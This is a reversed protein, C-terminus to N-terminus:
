EDAWVGSKVAMDLWNSLDAANATGSAIARLSGNFGRGKLYDHFIKRGHRYACEDGYLEVMGAAQEEIISRWESASPLSFSEPAQLQRFLWPNGMAGTALMVRSCGTRLKIENYSAVSNVGGNAIVEIEPFEERVAKIIDFYVPGSYFAKKVRGHVTLVQAGCDVLGRCLKLTPEPDETDLIRLKASVPFKSYKAVTDFCRVAEDYHLGLEAGACKKAVKPVPCGLNFDLIDFNFRNIKEVAERIHDTQGGLLQVGLFEEDDYRLLLDKSRDFAFTLSAADVMETFAYRCGCRRASRRYPADTFGSLPALILADPAYIM